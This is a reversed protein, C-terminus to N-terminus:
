KKKKRDPMDCTGCKCMFPLLGRLLFYAGLVAWPDMIVINLGIALFALGALIKLIKKCECCGMIERRVVTRVEMRKSQKFFKAIRASM